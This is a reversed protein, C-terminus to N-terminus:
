KRIRVFGVVRGFLKNIEYRWEWVAYAIALLLIGGIALWIYWNTGGSSTTAGLVGYDAVPMAKITRCRNTEPNREQGEKCPTPDTTAVVINRCRNTEESRYQGDKCPTQTKAVAVEINRCRNTEPSRYQNENCPKLGSDDKLSSDVALGGFSLNEFGPTPRDTYQWVEDIIAWATDEDPDQYSPTEDLVEDDGRLQVQSSSNLLSFGLETNTFSLYSRAPISSGAPFIYTGELSQGVLLEYRVLDIAHDNPNYLEIFEKGSDSGSANPLIETLRLPYLIERCNGNSAVELGDPVTPQYGEINPCADPEGEKFVIQSDPFWMPSEIDWDASQDTDLYEMQSETSLERTFVKGGLLTSTWSHNDIFMGTRDVLSISDSSGVINGSGQNTPEYLISFEYFQTFSAHQYSAVTAYSYGPLYVEHTDAHSFCAFSVNSKNRLCWDSINVEEPSNNYLVVMEELASGIGGAQIQTLVIHASAAYTPSVYALETFVVLGLIFGPIYKLM